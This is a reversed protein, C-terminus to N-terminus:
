YVAQRPGLFHLEGRRPEHNRTPRGPRAIGNPLPRKECFISGAPRLLAGISCAEGSKNVFVGAGARGSLSFGKINRVDLDYSQFLESFGQICNQWWDDASQWRWDGEEYETNRIAVQGLLSGQLDFAAVKLRTTGLDFTVIM